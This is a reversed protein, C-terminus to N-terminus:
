KRNRKEKRKIKDYRSKDDGAHEKTKTKENLLRKPKNNVCVFLFDFNSLWLCFSHVFCFLVCCFLIYVHFSQSQTSEHNTVHRRCCLVFRVLSFSRIVNEHIVFFVRYANTYLKSRFNDMSQIHHVTASTWTRQIHRKSNKSFFFVSITANMIWREQEEGIRKWFKVFDQTNKSSMSRPCTNATSLFSVLLLDMQMEDFLSCFCLVGLKFIINFCNIRYAFSIFRFCKMGWWISNSCKWKVFTWILLYSRFSYHKNRNLMTVLQMRTIKARKTETWHSERQGTSKQTSELRM